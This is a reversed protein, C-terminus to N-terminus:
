SGWIYITCFLFLWVVDVFHWYWIAAELGIHQTDLFHYNIHRILCVFLFATGILVHAGHFGTLLFFISGYVNDRISFPADIYEIYQCGTFLVGWCITIILGIIVDSRNGNVIARHAWTVSVGSSVLIVSNFLPLLWPNLVPFDKPPWVGGIWISPALSFHFFAWFFSFFFMIESVIFLVM